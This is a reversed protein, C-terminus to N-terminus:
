PTARAGSRILRRLRALNSSNLANWLDDDGVFAGHIFDGSWTHGEILYYIDPRESASATEFIDVVLTAEESGVNGGILERIYAVRAQKTMGSLNGAASLEEGTARSIDDRDEGSLGYNPTWHIISLMGARPNRVLPDVFGERYARRPHLDGSWRPDVPPFSDAIEDLQDRIDNGPRMAATIQDGVTPGSAGLMHMGWLTEFDAARWNQAPNSPDIEPIMTEPVYRDPTAHTAMRVYLFVAAGAVALGGTTSGFAFAVRVDNNGARIADEAITRTLNQPDPADLNSDGYVRGGPVALGLVNDYDHFLLLLLDGLKIPPLSSAIVNVQDIIAEYMQQVTGFATTVNSDIDNMRIATDLAMKHLLNYWFLPYKAAWYSRISAAPTRLHGASFSDTLFHQAAAEMAMAHSIDGGTAGGAAYALALAREHLTRYGLFASPAAAFPRIPQGAPDRGSPAYFHSTNQAALNKYRTEVAKKVTDSFVFGHWIGGSAFRPDSANIKKLAFIIEDRSGKQRGRSGPIEALRFLDPVHFYDGSLAIVDGYTLEFRTAPTDRGINVIASGTAQNGLSQHERSAFRQIISIPRRKHVDLEAHAECSRREPSQQIVHALEHAILRRGEHASPAFRGTGFVINSGVTYADADLDRASEQAESRSHVRVMSLDYGFRPEMFDRTIADLPQGTSSLVDHVIPPVSSADDGNAEPTVRQERLASHELKPEAMRMVQEAVRDAEREYPDDPQSVRLKTQLGLKCKSRCQACEGTPGSAGGCACKHQLVGHHAFTVSPLADSKPRTQLSTEMFM